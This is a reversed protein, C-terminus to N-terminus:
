EKERMARWTMGNGGAIVLVRHAPQLNPSLYFALAHGAEHHATREFKTIRSM